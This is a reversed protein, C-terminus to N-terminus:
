MMGSTQGKTSEGVTHVSIYPVKFVFNSRSLLDNVTIEDAGIKM